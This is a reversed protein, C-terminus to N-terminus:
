LRHAGRYTPPRPPPRRRGRAWFVVAGAVLALVVIVAILAVPPGEGSGSGSVVVPGASPASSGGVVGISPVEDTAGPTGSAAAGSAAASAQPGGSGPVGSPPSATPYPSAAPGPAVMAFDGFQTVVALYTGPGQDQSKLRQWGQDTDVWMTRDTDSHPSRLVVTVLASAPASLAAGAQNTVSIRYVNGDIHGEPPLTAPLVPKISFRISTSGAPLTLAGSTALLQAQPDTEPTAVAILRNLGHDVGATGSSGTAGGKAGAPPVLWVYPLNQTVGDYLPPQTLPSILQSLGILVVGLGAVALGLRRDATM